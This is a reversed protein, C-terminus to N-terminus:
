GKALHKPSYSLCNEWNQGLGAKNNLILSYISKQKLFYLYITHKYSINVKVKLINGRFFSPEEVNSIIRQYLYSFSSWPSIFRYMALHSMIFPDLPSTSSVILFFNTKMFVYRDKMLQYLNEKMYEFIFYLHDNERIVEKLKIVNAHNLKKLSQM